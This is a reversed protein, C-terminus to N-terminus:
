HWQKFQKLDNMAKGVVDHYDNYGTDEGFIVETIVNQDWRGSGDLVEHFFKYSYVQYNTKPDKWMDKEILLGLSRSLIIVDELTDM